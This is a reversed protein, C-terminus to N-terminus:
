YYLCVNNSYFLFFKGTEATALMWAFSQFDHAVEASGSRPLGIQKFLHFLLKPFFGNHQAGSPCVGLNYAALSDKRMTPARKHSRLWPWKSLPYNKYIFHEHEIFLCHLQNEITNLFVKLHIKKSIWKLYFM